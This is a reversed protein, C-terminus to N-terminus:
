TLLCTYDSHIMRGVVQISIVTIWGLLYYSLTKGFSARHSVQVNFSMIDVMHLHLFELFLIYHWLLHNIEVVYPSHACYDFRLEVIVTCEHNMYPYSGKRLNPSRLSYLYCFACLHISISYPWVWIGLGMVFQVSPFFYYANTTDSNPLGCIRSSVCMAYTLTLM